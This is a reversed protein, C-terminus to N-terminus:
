MRDRDRRNRNSRHLPYWFMKLYSIDHDKAM